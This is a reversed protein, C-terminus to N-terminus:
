KKLLSEILVTTNKKYDNYLSGTGPGNFGTQIKKIKGKKDIFITTPYSLIHNLMPLTKASESKKSPGGFVIPYTIGLDKKMRAVNRKFVEFDNRIEYDVAIIELGKSHYKKHLDVLFASEDMCNPCWSGMIQVIVVKNKFQPDSLSISDGNEDSFSFDLREYGEKLYTLTDPDALTFSDNRIAVWPEKWHNGSYFLGNEIRSGKGYGTFLFAHAGDFCSLKLNGEEVQGELYRYDGTETLFTGTIKHGIQKFIGIAKYEGDTGQSFTVEWRGEANFIAASEAVAFRENRGFQATFPIKYDKKEPNIWFGSLMNDKLTAKVYTSFVPFNIIVEGSDGYVIDKVRIREDANVILIEGSDNVEFTFPLVNKEDLQLMARWTGSKLQGNIMKHQNTQCSFLFLTFSLFGLLLRM